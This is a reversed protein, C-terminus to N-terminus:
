SGLLNKMRVGNEIIKPKNRHYDFLGVLDHTYVDYYVMHPPFWLFITQGRKSFVFRYAELM